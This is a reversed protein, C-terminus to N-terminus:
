WRSPRAPAGTPAAGLRPRFWGRCGCCSRSRRAAHRGGAAPRARAPHGAVSVVSLGALVLDDIGGDVLESISDMDSTLRAVMRGSTYREHFGISLRQFHGYVRQRLDLLVAQGIRGSLTLFGRKGAYEAVAAVRSRWASPRGAGRLRRRRAAAPHGPRHRADGPVARGHRRREARAPPRDHRGAPAPAPAAALGAAGPEPARLRAARSPDRRRPAPVTPTPTPRSAAGSAGIIRVSVDAEPPGTATSAAAASTPPSCTATRRCPPWCSPTRASPPSRATACCAVRDALAVTRRGTCSWCRPPAPAAGPGAGGRGAGRHARRAGLAPRRAGAGAAPRARGPGAGAAAAARRLAVPGARRRPHDLGWPLDHVFDAQAVALAEAVEDDTADPRGLTLNERVRCRSCRRSRSRWASSRPAALRAHHRPHRPRRAHDPRRDRRLLRPVLSALTTKGSGTAGVIALTEGPRVDLDVGRLVPAPPARTARVDVGEFRVEGRSAPGGCRSRARGTWSPRHRHRAGRLDPRGRDDGGARQRHDLRAVRDALHADAPADRVRGARRRDHPRDRGRGRRRGARGGADPQARPRVTRGLRPSCGAGQRRGHRAPAGRRGAFQAGMHPRRGFAKIVRLGQATEEVLTALDGQQDQMRRSAAIYRAPSGSASWSCRSRARRRRAARAALVPAAAPRRGDRVHRRQDDPLDARVLPVPPDGLPRHHGPVAAPRVALRRPVRDAAAAPPRLPRVRLTTEM